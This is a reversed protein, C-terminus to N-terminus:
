DPLTALSLADNSHTLFLIFVCPRLKSIRQQVEVTTRCSGGSTCGLIVCRPGLEQGPSNDTHLVGDLSPVILFCSSYTVLKKFANNLLTDVKLFILQMARWAILAKPLTYFHLGSFFIYKLLMMLHKLITFFWVCIIYGLIVYRPRLEQGPSNDAILVGDFSPVIFFCSGYTVLSILPM